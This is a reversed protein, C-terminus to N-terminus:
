FPERDSVEQVCSALSGQRITIEEEYLAKPKEIYDIEPMASLREIEARAATIIAYGSILYEAQLTEPFGTGPMGARSLAERLDGHYKIILEWRDGEVGVPLELSQERQGATAELSLNLLNELKQSAMKREGRRRKIIIGAM